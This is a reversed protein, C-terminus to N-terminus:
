RAGQALALDQPSALIDICKCATGAMNCEVVIKSADKGECGSPPPRTFSAASEEGSKFLKCGMFFVFVVATIALRQM